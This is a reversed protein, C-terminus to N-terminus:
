LYLETRNEEIKWALNFIFYLKSLAIGIRINSPLFLFTKNVSRNKFM